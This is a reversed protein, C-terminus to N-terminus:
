CPSARPFAAAPRRALRADGGPVDDDPGQRGGRRARRLAQRAPGDVLQPEFPPSHWLELPDVPQVDYHGYFLIHPGNYDAAGAFHGVVVPHGATPRVAAQFGLGALQDRWWEAAQLCTRRMPRNRASRPIRLLDFLRERSQELNADAHTLVTDLIEQTPDPM